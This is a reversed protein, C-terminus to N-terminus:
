QLGNVHKDQEYMIPRFFNVNIERQLTTSLIFLLNVNIERQLTTSLIFLLNVNIELDRDIYNVSHVNCINTFDKIRNVSSWDNDTGTPAYLFTITLLYSSKSM